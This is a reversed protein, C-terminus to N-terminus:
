KSASVATDGSDGNDGKPLVSAVAHRALEIKTNEAIKVVLRDTKVSVITGHIGGNTVVKDGSQLANVMAEHQKQKKRQPAIILFWMGAFLLGLILFQTMAGGGGGPAEAQAIYILFSDM